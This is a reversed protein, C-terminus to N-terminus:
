DTPVSLDSNTYLAYNLLFLQLKKSFRNKTYCDLANSTKSTQALSADPIFSVEARARLSKESNFDTSTGAM